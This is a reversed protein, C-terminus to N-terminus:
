KEKYYFWNEKITAEIYPQQKIPFDCRYDDLWPHWPEKYLGLETMKPILYKDIFKEAMEYNVVHAPLRLGGYFFMKTKWARALQYGKYIIFGRYYAM